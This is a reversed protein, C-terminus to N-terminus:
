APLCRDHSRPTTAPVFPAAPLSAPLTAQVYGRRTSGCLEAPRNGRAGAVAQRAPLAAQADTFCFLQCRALLGLAIRAAACSLSSSLHGQARAAPAQDPRHLCSILYTFKRERERKKKTGLFSTSAVLFCLVRREPRDKEIGAGM